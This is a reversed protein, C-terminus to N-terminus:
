ENERSLILAARYSALLIEASVEIDVLLHVNGHQAIFGSLNVATRCLESVEKPIAKTKQAAEEKQVKEIKPIQSFKLYADADEDVIELLRTRIQELRAIIKDIRENVKKIPSKGASYRAAMMLLGVGMAGTAACVSGGGPVPERASLVNM